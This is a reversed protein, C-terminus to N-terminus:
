KGDDSNNKGDIFLVSKRYFIGVIDEKPISPFGSLSRLDGVTGDM